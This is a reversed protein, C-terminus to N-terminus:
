AAKPLTFTFVTQEPGSQFSLVGGYEDLIGAVISLGMGRGEGKTSVGPQTLRDRM